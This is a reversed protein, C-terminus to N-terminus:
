ARFPNQYGTFVMRVFVVIESFVRRPGVMIACLVLLIVIGQIHVSGSRVINFMFVFSFIAIALGTLPADKARFTDTCVQLFRGLYFAIFMAFVVGFSYSFDVVFSTPIATKMEGGEFYGPYLWWFQETGGYILPKGTWLVRPILAGGVNFLWAIGHDIGTILQTTTSKAFFQAVHEIGEFSTMFVTLWGLATFKAAANAVASGFGDASIGVTNLGALVAIVNRSFDLFMAGLVTGIVSIAGIWWHSKRWLVFIIAALLIFGSIPRRSLLAHSALYSVGLTAIILIILGALNRSIPQGLVIVASTACASYLFLETMLWLPGSGTRASFFASPKSLLAHPDIVYIAIAGLVVLVFHVLMAGTLTANSTQYPEISKNYPQRYCRVSRTGLFVVIWIAFSFVLSISLLGTTLPLAGSNFPAEVTGKYVVQTEITGSHVLAARIPFALLVFLSFYWFHSFLTRAVGTGFAQRLFALLMAAIFVAAILYVTM